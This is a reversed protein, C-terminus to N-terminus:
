LDNFPPWPKEDDWKFLVPTSSTRQCLGTHQTTHLGNTIRDAVKV